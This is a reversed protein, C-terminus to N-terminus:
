CGWEGGLMEEVEQSGRGFGFVEGRYGSVEVIDHGRLNLDERTVSEFGEM